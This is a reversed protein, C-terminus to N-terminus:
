VGGFDMRNVVRSFKEGERSRCQGVGTWLARREEGLGSGWRTALVEGQIVGVRDKYGAARWAQHAMPHVLYAIPEFGAATVAVRDLNKGHNGDNDGVGIVFGLLAQVTVCLVHVGFRCEGMEAAPGAYVQCTGVRVRRDLVDGGLRVA